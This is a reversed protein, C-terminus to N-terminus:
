AFRFHNLNELLKGIRFNRRKAFGAKSLHGHVSAAGSAFSPAILSSLLSGLKAAQFPVWREGHPAFDPNTLLLCVVVSAANLMYVGVALKTPIVHRQAILIALLVVGVGGCAVIPWVSADPLASSIAFQFFMGTINIAVAVLAGWWASRPPLKATWVGQRAPAKM